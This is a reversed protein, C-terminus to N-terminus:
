PQVESDEVVAEVAKVDEIIDGLFHENLYKNMTFMTMTDVKFVEKLGADIIIESKKLPNQLNNAKIYVWLKSVVQARSEQCNEVGILQALESSIRRPKTFANIKKARPEGNEDVDAEAKRKRKEARDVKAKLKKARKDKKDQKEKNEKDKKDKKEKDKCEKLAKAEKKSAKTTNDPGDSLQDVSKMHAVLYKNMSFMTVNKRKFIAYLVDDCLIESRKAPNQLNKAKIHAWLRKVVEPRPALFTGMFKTLEDSLQVPKMFGNKIAPRLTEDGDIIGGFIDDAGDNSASKPGVLFTDLTSNLLKKKDGLDCHFKEELTVRITKMTIRSLDSLALLEIMADKIEDNSAMIKTLNLDQM